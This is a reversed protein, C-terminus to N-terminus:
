LTAVHSFHTLKRSNMIAFILDATDNNRIIASSTIGSLMWASKRDLKSQVYAVDWATLKIVKSGSQVVLPKSWSDYFSENCIPTLQLKRQKFKYSVQAECKAACIILIFAYFLKDTNKM